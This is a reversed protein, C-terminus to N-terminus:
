RRKKAQIRKSEPLAMQMAAGAFMIAVGCGIGALEGLAFNIKWFDHLARGGFFFILGGV